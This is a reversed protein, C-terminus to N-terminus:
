LSKSQNSEKSSLGWAERLKLGSADQTWNIGKELGSHISSTSLSWFKKATQVGNGISRDIEIQAKALGPAYEEELSYIYNGINASTKPLFYYSSAVLFVPPFSFRL